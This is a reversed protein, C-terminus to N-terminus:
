LDESVTSSTPPSLAETSCRRLTGVHTPMTAMAPPNTITTAPDRLFYAGSAPMTMQRGQEDFVRVRIRGADNGSVIISDSGGLYLDIRTTEGPLFRRGFWPSGEAGDRTRAILLEVAGDPRHLLRATEAERTAHVEPYKSLLLYFESAIDPLQDRRRRLTAALRAGALRYYPEPMRRLSSDIASDTLRGAVFRTISDWSERALGALLRRNLSDSTKTLAHIAPYEPGFELLEPARLRALKLLMGDYWSFARDRDVPIALWRVGWAEPISGWYWQGAHRDWDNLFLDLLRGTLFSKADLRHSSTSDALAFVEESEKVETVGAAVPFRRVYDDPSEQLLGVVGAFRERYKGLRDSDPLVVLRPEATPLGLARQLPLAVLPGAPFSASTQDHVLWAVPTRSMRGQLLRHSEKDVSRFIFHTGSASEFHLGRTEQGSGEKLPRLGGGLEALDLVPVVIPEAWLARYRDGLFRRGVPNTRYAQNAPTRVSDAGVPVEARSVDIEPFIPLVLLVALVLLALGIGGLLRGLRRM